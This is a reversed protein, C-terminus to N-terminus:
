ASVLKRMQGAIKGLTPADGPETFEVPIHTDQGLLRHQFTELAFMLANFRMQSHVIDRIGLSGSPPKPTAQKFKSPKSFRPLLAIRQGPKGNLYGLVPYHALQNRVKSLRETNIKLGQWTDLKHEFKQEVLRDVVQLKSRFNEISFFTTVFQMQDDESFACCGVWCLAQEVHAWSTIARGLYYYFWVREENVSMVKSM